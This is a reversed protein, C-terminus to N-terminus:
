SAPILVELSDADPLVEIIEVGESSIAGAYHVMGVHLVGDRLSPHRFEWGARTERVRFVAAVPKSWMTYGFSWWRLWSQRLLVTKGNLEKLDPWFFEYPDHQRIRLQKNFPHEELDDKHVRVQGGWFGKHGFYWHEGHELCRLTGKAPAGWYESRLLAFLTPVQVLLNKGELPILEQWSTIESM